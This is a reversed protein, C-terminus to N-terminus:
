DGGVKVKLKYKQLREVIHKLKKDSPSKLRMLMYRRGLNRYKEIGARHYPLIDIDAVANRSLFEGIEDVSEDSDNVEPVVPFRVKIQSGRKALRAFNELILRNSVGTFKKHVNDDIIKLDYLFLNVKEAITDFDEHPAYGCTELTTPIREKLCLDLLPVLFHIQTLPEGGSFTVGGRSQEYFMRDRLIESMVATVDMRTGVVGIANTACIEACKNCLDCLKRNISVIKKRFRIARKPCVKLCEHCGICRIRKYM